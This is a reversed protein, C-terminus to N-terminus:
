LSFITSEILESKSLVATDGAECRLWELLFYVFLHTPDADFFLFNKHLLNSSLYYKKIIM